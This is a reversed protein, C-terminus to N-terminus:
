GFLRKWFGRKRLEAVKSGEDDRFWPTELVGLSVFYEQNRMNLAHEISSTQEVIRFKRMRTLLFIMNQTHRLGSHYIVNTQEKHLDMRVVTYVDISFDFVHNIFLKLDFYTRSKKNRIQVSDYQRELYRRVKNSRVIEKIMPYKKKWYAHKKGKKDTYRFKMLINFVTRLIRRTSSRLSLGLKSLLHAIDANTLDFLLKHLITVDVYSDSKAKERFATRIDNYHPRITQQQLTGYLDLFRRRHAFQRILDIAYIEDTGGRVWIGDEHHVAIQKHATEVYFDIAKGTGLPKQREINSHTCFLQAYFEQPPLRQEEGSYPPGHRESVLYIQRETSNMTGELRHISVVNSVDTEPMWGWAEQADKFARPPCSFKMARKREKKESMTLPM